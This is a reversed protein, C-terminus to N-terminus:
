PNSVLLDWLFVSKPRDPNVLVRVPQNNAYLQNMRDKIQPRGSTQFKAQIDGSAMTYQLYIQLTGKPGPKIKSIIAEILTGYALLRRLWNRKYRLMGIPLLTGLLGLIPMAFITALPFPTLRGGQIRSLRPDEPAYEISVSQGAAAIPSGSFCSGRLPPAQTQKRETPEFEFTYHYTISGKSGKREQVNLVKGFALSTPGTELRWEGKIDAVKYMLITVIGTTFLIFAPLIYFFARLFKPFLVDLAKNLLSEEVQRPPSQALYWEISDSTWDM